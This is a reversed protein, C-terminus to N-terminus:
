VVVAPGAALRAFTEAGWGLMDDWASPVGRTVPPPDWDLQACAAALTERVSHAAVRRVADPKEGLSALELVGTLAAFM